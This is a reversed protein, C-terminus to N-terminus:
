ARPPTYKKGYQFTFPSRRHVADGNGLAVPRRQAGEVGLQGDFEDLVIELHLQAVRQVQATHGGRQEHAHFGAQVVVQVAHLARHAEVHGGHVALALHHMRQGLPLPQRQLAVIEMHAAAQVGIHVGYAAVLRQVVQM